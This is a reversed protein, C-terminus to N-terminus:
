PRPAMFTPAPTPPHSAPHAVSKAPPQARATSIRVPLPAAGRAQPTLGLYRGTTLSTTLLERADDLVTSVIPHPLHDLYALDSEVRAPTVDPEPAGGRPHANASTPRGATADRTPPPGGGIGQPIALFPVDPGFGVPGPGSGQVRREAMEWAVLVPDILDGRHGLATIAEYIERRLPDRFSEPPLFSGILAFGAAGNMLGSLVHEERAADADPLWGRRAGRVPGPVDGGGPPPQLHVHFRATRRLAEALGQLHEPSGTLPGVAEAAVRESHSAADRRTSAVSLLEAYRGAHHMQPCSWQLRLVDGRTIGHAAVSESVADVVSREPPRPNARSAVNLVAAYVHRRISDTLEDPRLIRGWPRFHEWPFEDYLLAGVFAQEVRAILVSM